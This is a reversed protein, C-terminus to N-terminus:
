RAAGFLISLCAVCMCAYMSVHMCVYVYVCWRVGVEAAPLAKIGLKQKLKHVIINNLQECACLCACVYVHVIARVGVEATPLAKTGLKQKLKHVIINNLQQSREDRLELYFLSLGRSGSPPPTHENEQIRALTFAM